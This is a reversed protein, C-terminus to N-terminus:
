TPKHQDEKLRKLFRGLVQLTRDTSETFRFGIIYNGGPRAECSMVDAKLELTPTQQDDVELSLNARAGIKMQGDAILHAEILSLDRTIARFSPLEPSRVVYSRLHHTPQDDLKFYLQHAREAFFEAATTAAEAPATIKGLYHGRGLAQRVDM